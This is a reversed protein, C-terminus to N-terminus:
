KGIIKKILFVSSRYFHYAGLLFIIYEIKFFLKLQTFNNNLIEDRLTKKLYSKEYQDTQSLMYYAGVLYRHIFNAKYNEPFVLNHNAKFETIGQLLDAVNKESYHNTISGDRDRYYYGIANIHTIKKVSNALRYTTAVDEYNRGVPFEIQNDIYLKRRVIHAWAYNEFQIENPNVLKFFWDSPELSQVMEFDQKKEFNIESLTKFRKFNFQIFEPQKEFILTLIDLVFDHRIIDDGDVFWIYEGRSIKLGQNRIYSLGGNKRSEVFINKFNLGKLINETGDTSGDDMLLIEVYPNNVLKQLQILLDPLENKINYIAVIISLKINKNGFEM